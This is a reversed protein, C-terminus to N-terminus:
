AVLAVLEHIMSLLVSLRMGVLTGGITVSAPDTETGSLDDVLSSTRRGTATGATPSCHHAPTSPPLPRDITIPHSM